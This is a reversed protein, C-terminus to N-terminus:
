RLDGPTLVLIPNGNTQVFAMATFTTGEGFDMEEYQDFVVQTKGADNGSLYSIDGYVLGTQNNFVNFVIGPIVISLAGNSSTMAQEDFIFPKVAVSNSVAESIASELEPRTIYPEGKFNYLQNTRVAM